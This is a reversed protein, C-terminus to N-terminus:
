YKGYIIKPKTISLKPPHTTVGPVHSTSPSSLQKKLLQKKQYQDAIEQFPSMFESGGGFRVAVFKGSQPRFRKASGNRVINITLGSLFILLIEATALFLGEKEKTTFSSFSQECLKTCYYAIKRAPAYWSNNKFSTQSTLCKNKEGYLMAEYATPCERLDLYIGNYVSNEFQLVFRVCVSRM